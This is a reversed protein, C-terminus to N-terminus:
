KKALNYENEYWYYMMQTRLVFEIFGYMGESIKQFWQSDLGNLYSLVLKTINSLKKKSVSLKNYFTCNDSYVPYHYRNGCYLITSLIRVWM